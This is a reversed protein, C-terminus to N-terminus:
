PLNCDTISTHIFNILSSEEKKDSATSESSQSHLPHFHDNKQDSSSSHGFNRLTRDANLFTRSSPTYNLPLFRFYTYMNQGNICLDRLCGHFPFHGGIDGQSSHDSGPTTTRHHHDSHPHDYFGQDNDNDLSSSHHHDSLSHGPPFPSSSSPHVSALSPPPPTPSALLPPTEPLSSKQGFYISKLVQYLSSWQGVKDFEVSIVQNKENKTNDTANSLETFTKGASLSARFITVKEERFLSQGSVLKDVYRIRSSLNLTVFTYKSNNTNRKKRRLRGSTLKISKSIMVSDYSQSEAPLVESSSDLNDPFDSNSLNDGNTSLNADPDFHEIRANRTDYSRDPQVKANLIIHDDDLYLHIYHFYTEVIDADSENLNNDPIDFYLPIYLLTGYKKLSLYKFSISLQKDQNMRLIQDRNLNLIIVSDRGNFYSAFRNETVNGHEFKM